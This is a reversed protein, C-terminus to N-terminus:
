SCLLYKWHIYDMYGINKYRRTDDAIPAWRQKAVVSALFDLSFLSFVTYSATKSVFHSDLRFTSFDDHSMVLVHFHSSFVVIIRLTRDTTYITSFITQHGAGTLFASLDSNLFDTSSSFGWIYLRRRMGRSDSVLTWKHGSRSSRRKVVRTEQPM